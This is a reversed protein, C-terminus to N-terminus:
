RRTSRAPRRPVLALVRRAWVVGVVGFVAFPMRWGIRSLLAVVLPQTVAGGLARRGHAARRLHARAARRAALARLHAGDGPLRRGRRHRVPLARAVLSAFGAALGTAATMASWWVVIRSLALRAGFRDALWGSPVEFLAYSLTFASFVLGMQPDRSGLDAQMAPAATSICVRDLYAIAIMALTFAVAGYRVNTPRM